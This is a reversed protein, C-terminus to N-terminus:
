WDWLYSTDWMQSHLQDTNRLWQKKKVKPIMVTRSDRWKEPVTGGEFVKNYAETLRIVLSESDKLSRYIIEGKLKDPGPQKGKKLIGLAGKVEDAVLVIRPMVHIVETREINGSLMDM